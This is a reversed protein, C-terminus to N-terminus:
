WRRLSRVCSRLRMWRRLMDRRQDHEGRGSKVQADPGLCEDAGDVSGDEDESEELEMVDDAGINLRFQGLVEICMESIGCCVDVM